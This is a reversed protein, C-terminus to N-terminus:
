FNKYTPVYPNIETRNQLQHNVPKKLLLFITPKLISDIYDLIQMTTKDKLQTRSCLPKAENCCWTTSLWARQYHAQAM